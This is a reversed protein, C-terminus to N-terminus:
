GGLLALFRSTYSLRALFMTESLLVRERRDNPSRVLKTTTTADVSGRHARIPFRVTYGTIFGQNNKVEHTVVSTQNEKLIGLMAHLVMQADICEPYSEYTHEFENRGSIEARDAGRHGQSLTQSVRHTRKAESTLELSHTPYFVRDSGLDDKIMVQFKDDSPPPSYSRKPILEPFGKAGTSIQNV